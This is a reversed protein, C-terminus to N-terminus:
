WYINGEGDVTMGLYRLVAAAQDYSIRDDQNLVEVIESNYSDDTPVLLRYLLIRSEYALTSDNLYEVLTGTELLEEVEVMFIALEFIHMLDMKVIFEEAVWEAVNESQDFKSSASGTRTEFQLLYSYYEAALKQENIDFSTYRERFSNYTFDTQCLEANFIEFANTALYFTEFSDPVCNYFESDQPKLLMELKVSSNPGLIYPLFLSKNDATLTAYQWKSKAAYMEKLINVNIAFNLNQANDYGANTIGIVEYKENLLVGGSSGHSIPASIRIENKRDINSIIGESVTNREGMPSGITTINDKVQLDNGDGLALPTLRGNISLVALDDKKNFVEINMVDLKNGEDTIVALWRAGEIVHFNTVIWNDEYACFGSGTGILENQANYAEIMVVSDKIQEINPKSSIMRRGVLSAVLVVSVFLIILLIIKKRNGKRGFEM